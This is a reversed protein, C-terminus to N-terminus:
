SLVRRLDVVAAVTIHLTVPTGLNSNGGPAEQIQLWSSAASNVQVNVTSNVPTSGESTAVNVAQVTSVSGHQVTVNITNNVVGTGTLTVTQARATDSFGLLLLGIAVGSLASIWSHKEQRM